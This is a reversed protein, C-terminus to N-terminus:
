KHFLLLLLTIVTSTLVAVSIRMFVNAFSQLHLLREIKLAHDHVICDTTDQRRTMREIAEEIRDQGRSLEELRNYIPTINEALQAAVRDTVKEIIEERFEEKLAENATDQLRVLFQLDYINLTMKGRSEDTMPVRNVENMIDDQNM